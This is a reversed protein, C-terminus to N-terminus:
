ALSHWPVAHNWKAGTSDFKFQRRRKGFIDLHCIKALCSLLLRADGCVDDLYILEREPTVSPRGVNAKGDGTSHPDTSSWQPCHYQGGHRAEQSRILRRPAKFHAAKPIHFRVLHVIELPNAIYDRSQTILTPTQSATCLANCSNTTTLSISNASQTISKVFIFVSLQSLSVLYLSIRKKEFLYEFLQTTVLLNYNKNLVCVDKNKLM